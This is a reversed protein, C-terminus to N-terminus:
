RRSGAASSTSNTESRIPQSGNAPGDLKARWKVLREGPKASVKRLDSQVRMRHEVGDLTYRGSKEFRLLGNTLSYSFGFGGPGGFSIYQDKMWASGFSDSVLREQGSRDKSRLEVDLHAEYKGTAPNTWQREVEFVCLILNTETGSFVDFNTAVFSTSEWRGLLQEAPSPPSDGALTTGALALCSALTSIARLTNM